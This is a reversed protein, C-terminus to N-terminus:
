RSAVDLAGGRKPAGDRTARAGRRLGTGRAHRRVIAALREIGEVITAEPLRAFSLDLQSVGQGDITFADGRAYLVGDAMADQYVVAGDVGDPLTVWVTHGAAPETWRTGAPMSTRLAELMAILRASYLKRVRRLHRELEGTRLMTTLALQPLLAPGGDANWHALVLTRLLLRPAVVFGIRLSPFLLKSFTGAYIVQGARDLAKLAGVAHGRYRLEGAYDDELIPLQHEDALTLLEARRSDSMVVGTPNQAAPTTYVLKVRRARLVRELESTRLGQEDVAVGVLNAQAARFALAAGFYGPQEIVVTDGPDVLVRALLDIAQQAGSVVAIEEPECEIGRAVLLRAIERRLPRWGYADQHEGLERGHRRVGLALARRLEALPLSAGDVQGALFDYRPERGPARPVIGAPIALLRSRLAFLSPWVFARGSAAPKVAPGTRLAPSVFSGRGVQSTIRGERALAEYAAVITVRALGLACALERTAPLKTGPPLRQADILERLYIALQRYAPEGASRDVRFGLELMVRSEVISGIGTHIARISGSECSQRLDMAEAGAAKTADCLDIPCGGQM